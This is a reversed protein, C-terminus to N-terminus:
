YLADEGWGGIMLHFPAPAYAIDIIDHCEIWGISERAEQLRHPCRNDTAIVHYVGDSGGEKAVAGGMPEGCTRLPSWPVAIM